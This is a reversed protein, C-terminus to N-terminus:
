LDHSLVKGTYLVPGTPLGTPSGGPPELSVALTSGSPPMARMPMTMPREPAPALMGLPQPAGGAISWLEFAHAADIAQPRIAAVSIEGRQRDATAIWAPQGSQDALVALIVPAPAPGESVGVYVLLAAAVATAAAAFGRWLALSAFWGGAPAAAPKSQPPAVIAADIARWVRAPPTEPPTAEDVPAFHEAWDGVLRALTADKAMLREFRTRARRPMTGLIYEGALLERLKPDDYRM